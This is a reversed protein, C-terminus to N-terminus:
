NTVAVLHLGVRLRAQFILPIDESAFCVLGPGFGRTFLDYQGVDVPSIACRMLIQRGLQVHRACVIGVVAALVDRVSVGYGM